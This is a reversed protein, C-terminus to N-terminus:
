VFSNKALNRVQADAVLPNQSLQVTKPDASTAQTKLDQESLLYDPVDKKTQENSKPMLDAIVAKADEFEASLLLTLTNTSIGQWNKGDQTKVFGKQSLETEIQAQKATKKLQDNEATLENNQTELEQTKTALQAVQTKLENIALLAEELTMTNEGRDANQNPNQSLIVAKTEADVGTPTFSVESIKANKLICMPAQVTQGNVMATQKGVIEEIYGATASVSMQWPFGADADAAITKALDNNLLVGEILLQNDEVRLSGMGVRQSRDHLLLAPIKDKYQVSALDIIVTKGNYVFPKATKAIGSFRRPKSKDQAKLAFESLLFQM